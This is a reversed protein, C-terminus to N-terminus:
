SWPPGEVAEKIGPSAQSHRPLAETEAFLAIGTPGWPHASGPFRSGVLSPTGVNSKAAPRIHRATSTAFSAGRPAFVAAVPRGVPIAIVRPTVNYPPSQGGIRTTALLRTQIVVESWQKAIAAFLQGAVASGRIGFISTV